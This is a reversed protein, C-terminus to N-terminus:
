DSDEAEPLDGRPFVITGLLSATELPVIPYDGPSGAALGDFQKWPRPRGAAAPFKRWIFIALPNCWLLGQRLAAVAAERSELATSRIQM